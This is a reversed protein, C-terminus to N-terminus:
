VVFAMLSHALFTEVACVKMSSCHEIAQMNVQHIQTHGSEIHDRLLLTYVVLLFATDFVPIDKLYILVSSSSHQVKVKQFIFCYIIYNGIIM